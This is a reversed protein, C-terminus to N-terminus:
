LWLLSQTLVFPCPLYGNKLIKWWITQFVLEEQGVAGEGGQVGVAAMLCSGGEQSSDFPGKNAENRGREM